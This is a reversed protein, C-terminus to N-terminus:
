RGVVDKDILGQYDATNSTTQFEVEMMKGLVWKARSM